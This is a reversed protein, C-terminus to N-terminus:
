ELVINDFTPCAEVWSKLYIEGVGLRQYISEDQSCGQKKGIMMVHVVPPNRFSHLPQGNIDYYAQTRRYHNAALQHRMIEQYKTKTEDEIGEWASETTYFDVHKPCEVIHDLSVFIVGDKSCPCGYIDSLSADMGIFAPDRLGGTVSIAIFEINVRDGAQLLDASVRRDLRANGALKGTPTRVSRDRVAHGLNSPNEPWPTVSFAVKQTHAIIRGTAILKQSKADEFFDHDEGDRLLINCHGSDGVPMKEALRNAYEDRACDLALWEPPETAACGNLWAIAATVRFHDNSDVRTPRLNRSARQIPEWRLASSTNQEKRSLSGWHALGYMFHTERFVVDGPCALWSWTPFMPADVINEYEHDRWLMAIDIEAWPMGYYSHSGYLANLIGSVGRLKDSTYTLQRSSYLEVMRLGYERGYKYLAYGPPEAAGESYLSERKNEQSHYYIGYETFYLLRLSAAHEQYTWARHQWPTKWLCEHLDPIEHVLQLYDNYKIISGKTQRARSVGPLGQSAGHGTAVITLTARHYITAMQDLQLSIDPDDQIVCFRDVWLYQQGLQQCTQMADLITQPLLNKTLSGPQELHHINSMQCRLSSQKEVGWVYSLAYYTTNPSLLVIRRNPIDIVRVQQLEQGFTLPSYHEPEWKQSEQRAIQKRLLRWRIYPRIYFSRNRGSIV